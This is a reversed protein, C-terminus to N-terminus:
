IHRLNLEGILEGLIYNLDWRTIAYHVLKGYRARMANWDVGHMNPDYFFDREFDGAINFIQHWEERSNIKMEMEAIPMKKELKQEPAIDAMSYSGKVAIM